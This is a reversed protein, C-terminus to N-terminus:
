AAVQMAQRLADYIAFASIPPLGREDCLKCAAERAARPLDNWSPWLAALAAQTAGCDCRAGRDASFIACEDKHNPTASM